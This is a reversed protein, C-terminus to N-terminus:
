IKIKKFFDSFSQFDIEMSKFEQIKLCLSKRIKTESIARSHSILTKKYLSQFLVKLCYNVEEFKKFFRKKVVIKEMDRRKIKKNSVNNKFEKKWLIRSESNLDFLRPLFSGRVMDSVKITPIRKYNFNEFFFYEKKESKKQEFYNNFKTRFVVNFFKNNKPSSPKLYLKLFRSKVLFLFFTPKSFNIRFFLTKFKIGVPTFFKNGSNENASSKKKGIEKQCKKHIFTSIPNNKHLFFKKISKISVSKIIKKFKNIKIRILSIENLKKEFFLVMDIKIISFLGLNDKKFNKDHSNDRLNKRPDKKKLYLFHSKELLQFEFLSKNIKNSEPNYKVDLSKNRFNLCKTKLMLHIFKKVKGVKVESELISYHFYNLFQNTIKLIYTTKSLFPIMTKIYCRIKLLYPLFINQKGLFIELFPKQYFKKMVSIIECTVKLLQILFFLNQRRQGYILFCNMRFDWLKINKRDTM